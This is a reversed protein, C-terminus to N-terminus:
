ESIKLPRIRTREIVYNRSAELPIGMSTGKFLLTMTGKMKFLVRKKAQNKVYWSDVHNWQGVSVGTGYSNGKLVLSLLRGNKVNAVFDQNIWLFGVSFPMYVSCTQRTASPSAQVELSRSVVSPDGTSEASLLAADELLQTAIEQAPLGSHRLENSLEVIPMGVTVTTGVAAQLQGQVEAAVLEDLADNASSTQPVLALLVACVVSLVVGKHNVTM